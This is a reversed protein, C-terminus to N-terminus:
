PTCAVILSFDRSEFAGAGDFTWVGITQANIGTALFTEISSGNENGDDSVTGTVACNAVSKKM